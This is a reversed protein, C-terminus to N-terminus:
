PENKQRERYEEILEVVECMMNDCHPKKEGGAEFNAKLLDGCNVLGSHNEKITRQFEGVIKVDNIGLLGLVMLGGTIAGCVGGTKMGGGFNAGLANAESESIGIEDAYVLLLTQTCNPMPIRGRIINVNEVYKDSNM